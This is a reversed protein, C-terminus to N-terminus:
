PAPPSSIVRQRIIEPLVPEIGGDSDPLDVEGPASMVAAEDDLDDPADHAPMVGTDCQRGSEGRITELM